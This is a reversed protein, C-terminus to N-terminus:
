DKGNEQEELVKVGHAIELFPHLRKVEVTKGVLSKPDIGTLDGNVFLDIRHDSNDEDCCIHAYPPFEGKENYHKVKFIM